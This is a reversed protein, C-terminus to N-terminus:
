VRQTINVAGVRRGDYPSAGGRLLPDLSQVCLCYLVRKRLSATVQEQTYDLPLGLYRCVMALVVFVACDVSCQQPCAAHIPMYKDNLLMGYGMGVARLYTWLTDMYMTHKPALGSSLSDYVTITSRKLNAELLLYHGADHVQCLVSEVGNLCPDNKLWMTVLGKIDGCSLRDPM